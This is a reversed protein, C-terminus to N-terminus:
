QGKKDRWFELPAIRQMETKIEEVTKFTTHIPSLKGIIKESLTYSEDFQNLQASFTVNRTTYYVDWNKLRNEITEM